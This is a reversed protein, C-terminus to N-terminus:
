ETNMNSLIETLYRRYQDKIAEPKVIKANKGIGALWGFFQSSIAVDVRAQFVGEGADRIIVEKGFRDIVVGILDNTFSITVTETNGGFMGFVQRSYFAPNKKAFAEEGLREKELVQTKGMKDVRYHKMTETDADYAILYYNENQWVLAWPSVVRAPGKRAEMKKKLNWDMYQFSIQRNEQIGRHIADVSYYITENESKVRDIVYVERQLKGAAYKGAKRELKSILERSKRQTIFRSSQVADVLLKLEALEFEREGLYYGGGLRTSVRLIDYGFERLREMDDYISKREASIGNAELYEIARNTTIPYEESSEEELLKLLYLLKLKQRASKPM